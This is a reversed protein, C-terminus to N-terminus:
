DFQFARILNKPFIVWADFGFEKKIGSTSGKLPRIIVFNEKSQKQVRTILSFSDYAYEDTTLKRRAILNDLGTHKNYTWAFSVAEPQKLISPLSGPMRASLHAAGSQVIVIDYDKQRARIQKAWHNNRAQKGWLSTACIAYKEGYEAPNLSSLSVSRNQKELIVKEGGIVGYVSHRNEDQEVMFDRPSELGMVDIGLSVAIQTEITYPDDSQPMNTRGPAGPAFFEDNHFEMALLIKADPFLLRATQLFLIEFLQVLPSNHAEGMYIFLPNDKSPRKNRLNTADLLAPMVADDERYPVARVSAFDKLLRKTDIPTSARKLAQMISDSKEYVQAMDLARRAPQACLAAPCLCLIM